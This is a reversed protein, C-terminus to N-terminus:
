ISDEKGARYGLEYAVVMLPEADHLFACLGAEVKKGTVKEFYAIFSDANFTWKEKM